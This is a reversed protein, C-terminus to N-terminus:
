RRGQPVYERERRESMMRERPTMLAEAIPEELMYEFRKATYAIMRKVHELGAYSFDLDPSALLQLIDYYFGM